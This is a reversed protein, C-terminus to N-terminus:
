LVTVFYAKFFLSLSFFCHSNHMEVPTVLVGSGEKKRDVRHRKQIELQGWNAGTLNM